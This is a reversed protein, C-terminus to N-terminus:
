ITCLIWKKYSGDIAFTCQPKHSVSRIDSAMGLWFHRLIPGTRM